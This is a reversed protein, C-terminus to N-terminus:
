QNVYWNSKSQKDGVPYNYYGKIDLVKFYQVSGDVMNSLTGKFHSNAFIIEQIGFPNFHTTGYGVCRTNDLGVFAASGIFGSNTWCNNGCIILMLSSANKIFSIKKRTPCKPDEVGRNNYNHNIFYSLPTDKFYMRPFTDLPCHFIMDNYSLYERLVWDWSNHQGRTSTAEYTDAPIYGNYDSTYTGVAIGIGRLNGTCYANYAALKAKKLAPLLISTLILIIGIVILLELLTFHKKNLKM